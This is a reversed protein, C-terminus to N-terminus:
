IKLWIYTISALYIGIYNILISDLDLYLNDQINGNFIKIIGKIIEEDYNKLWIDRLKYKKLFQEVIDMKYNLLKKLIKYMFFLEIKKIFKFNNNM